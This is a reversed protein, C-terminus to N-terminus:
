RGEGASHLFLDGLSPASVELGGIRGGQEVVETVVRALFASTGGDPDARGLIRLFPTGRSDTEESVGEVGPIGNLRDPFIPSTLRIDIRVARDLSRILVSPAGTAIVRGDRLLVVRTALAAAEHMDNSAFIVTAGAGAADQLLTYLTLRAHYDLGMSPEDLLLLRPAHALAEILALKRRMGYSYTAVPDDQREQLDLRNFLMDLRPRATEPTLGYSRAFYWANEYGTLPDWHGLHDFLVGIEKFSARDLRSQGWWAIAGDGPRLLGAILRLLTSKGSGNGGLLGIIEGEGAALTVGRLAAISGFSRSVGDLALVDGSNM